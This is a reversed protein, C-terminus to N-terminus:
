VYEGYIIITNGGDDDFYEFPTFLTLHAPFMDVSLTGGMCQAEYWIAGPTEEGSVPDHIVDRITLLKGATTCTWYIGQVRCPRGSVAAGIKTFTNLVSDYENNERINFPQGSQATTRFHAM